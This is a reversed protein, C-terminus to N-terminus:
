RASNQVTPRAATEAEKADLVFNLLRTYRGLRIMNRPSINGLQPNPLRFWLEVKKADANFFEAVLNAINAIESLREAVPQPIKADFRVSSASVKGIKGLDTKSLSVLQAVRKYNPEHDSFLGLYDEKFVHATMSHHPVSPSPKM